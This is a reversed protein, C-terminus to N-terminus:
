ILPSKNENTNLNSINDCYILRRIFLILMIIIILVNSQWMAANIYLMSSLRGSSIRSVTPPYCVLEAPLCWSKPFVNYEKPFLKYMRNMNRALTDKRCIESMSPFHNIKQERITRILICEYRNDIIYVTLSFCFSLFVGFEYKECMRTPKTGIYIYTRNIQYRLCININGELRLLSSYVILAM